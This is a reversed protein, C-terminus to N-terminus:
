TEFNMMKKFENFDIQGDGDVDVNYILSAWVHEEVAGNLTRFTKKIEKADIKGNQDYDFRDFAMKLNKENIIKSKNMSAILFEEFEIAGNKDADMNQFYSDIDNDTIIKTNCYKSIFDKLEDKSIKGDFDKDISIFLKKLFMIEKNTELNHIIFSYVAQQLKKEARFTKINDIVSIVKVDEGNTQNFRPSYNLKNQSFWPNNILEEASPRRDPNKQLMNKIIKVSEKSLFEWIKKEKFKLPEDLIACFIENNTTGNFPPGGSLLIYMIIGCSWIDCKENYKGRLVEPAIYFSTGTKKTLNENPKIMSSTGFDIIKLSFGDKDDKEVLINEPKIDRHTVGNKHCYNIGGLIQRMCVAAHEENFYKTQAIKEFLEEGEILECILYFRHERNYFEYIKMINPHNLKKLIEIEKLFREDEYKKQDIKITLKEIEIDEYVDLKTKDKYKTIIKMARVAGTKINKVKYVKGYGGEGLKSVIKYHEFPNNNIENIFISSNIKLNHEVSINNLSDQCKPSIITVKNSGTVCGM